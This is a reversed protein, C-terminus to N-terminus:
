PQKEPLSTQVNHEPTSQSALSPYAGCSEWCFVDIFCTMTPM